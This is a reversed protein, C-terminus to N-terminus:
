LKQFSVTDTSQVEEWGEILEFIDEISVKADEIVCGVQLKNMGFAVPIIKPETNWVLGEVKIQKIKEFLKSLDTTEEYIKVDFVIISKAVPKEKKKKDEKPKPPAPQAPADNTDDGFM